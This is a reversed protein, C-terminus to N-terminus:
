TCYNSFESYFYMGLKGSVDAWTEGDVSSIIKRIFVLAADYNLTNTLLMHQPIYFGEDELCKELWDPRCVTVSFNTGSQAGVPGITMEILLSSSEPDALAGGEMVDWSYASILHARM